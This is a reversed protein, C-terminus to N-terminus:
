FISSLRKGLSTDKKFIEHYQKSPLVYLFFISMHPAFSIYHTVLTIQSFWDSTDYDCAYLFLIIIEPLQTLFCTLPGLLLDIRKRTQDMLTDRTAKQYAHVKSRTIALIIILAAVTNVVFPVVRHILSFVQTLLLQHPPIERICWPFSYDPHNVLKYQDIFIYNSSFVGFSILFILSTATMPKQSSSWRSYQMAALARQVTVIAMLWLSDYYFNYMLFPLSKCVITSIAHEIVIRRISYLYTVRSFFLMLTLLSCVSTSLLHLAVGTQRLKRHIFTIIALGNFLMGILLFLSPGIFNGRDWDNKEILLELSISFQSQSFQCLVGTVCKPCVCAFDTKNTLDGRVCHGTHQCFSCTSYRRQYSLCNSQNKQPYGCYCLYGDIIFCTGYTSNKCFSPSFTVSARQNAPLVHCKQPQLDLDVSFNRIANSCNIFLLHITTEVSHTNSEFTFLLGIEPPVGTLNRYDRTKITQLLPFLTLSQVLIQQRITPYDGALQLLQLLLPSKNPEQRNLRIVPRDGNCDSTNCICTHGDIPPDSRPVCIQNSSCRIRQCKLNEVYCYPGLYSEPCVCISETRALAHSACYIHDMRTECLRGKWNRSCICLFQNDEREYCTGNNQCYSRACLWPLSRDPFRPVKIIRLVPLFDLPNIPYEWFHILETSHYAEIRVCYIGPIKPRSYVLYTTTKSPFEKREDLFFRYDIVVSGNLLLMVLVNLIIPLDDRHKRDFRLRIAVRRSSFQCRDGYFTPPCFCSLESNDIAQLYFGRNCYFNRNTPNEDRNITQRDSPSSALSLEIRSESQSYCRKKNDIMLADKGSRYFYNENTTIPCWFRQSKDNCTIGAKCRTSKCGRRDACSFEGAPCWGDNWYCISEDTGDVCNRIGNCIATYDICKTGSDCLFRDGVMRHDPCPSVNREDRAGICDILEDAVRTLAICPRHSSQNKVYEDTICFFETSKNCKLELNWPIWPLSCNVEDEGDDCDFEGDCFYSREICQGTRNCKYLDVDCMWYSCNREDRGDMTDWISDCYRHFHLRADNIRNEKFRDGQFVWCAYNDNVDCKFSSWRLERSIEDSRDTCDAVGDGLKAYSVYQPPSQVTQCQYRFLQTMTFDSNREDDGYLCDIYGDNIRRLSVRDSTNKCRYSFAQLSSDQDSYIKTYHTSQNMVKQCVLHSLPFFPYTALKQLEEHDFTIKESINFLARDCIIVGNFYFIDPTKLVPKRLNSPNSFFAEFRSRSYAIKLGPFFGNQESFSILEDCRAMINKIALEGLRVSPHTQLLHGLSQLCDSANTLTLIRKMTEKCIGPWERRTNVFSNSVECTYAIHRSNECGRDDILVSSWPVCEGNGCSFQDKRCLRDDCEYTSKRSCDYYRKYIEDLEQEDSWDMCDPMADFAFEIPICMGNRCQFEDPECEHFELIHCDLEDAGNQCQSIGDCIHRWELFLDGGQCTIGDVFRTLTEYSNLHVDAMQQSLLHGPSRVKSNFIYECARGIRNQSCNCITTEPALKNKDDDLYAAYQEILHFPILWDMLNATTRSLKELQEFTWSEGHKCSAKTDDIKVPRCYHRFEIVFCDTYALDKSYLMWLHEDDGMSLRLLSYIVIICVQSTQM